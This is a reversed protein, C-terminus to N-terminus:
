CVIDQGMHVRTLPAVRQSFEPSTEPRLSFDWCIFGAHKFYHFICPLLTYMDTIVSFIELIEFIYNKDCNSKCIKLSVLSVAWPGLDLFRGLLDLARLRHVQSLLM